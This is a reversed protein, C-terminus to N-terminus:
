RDYEKEITIQATAKGYIVNGTKLVARDYHGFLLLQPAPGQVYTNGVSLPLDQLESGGAGISKDPYIFKVTIANQPIWRNLMDFMQDFNDPPIASPAGFSTGGGMFELMIVGPQADGPIRFEITKMSEKNNFSTMRLTAKVSDGPHFTTKGLNVGEINLDGRGRNVTIKIKVNKMRIDRYPNDFLDMLYSFVGSDAADPPQVYMDEYHFPKGYGEIEGDIVAHSTVNTEPLGAAATVSRSFVSYLLLPAFERLQAIQVNFTRSRGSDADVVEATVPFFDPKDGIHGAIASARDDTIAGIVKGPAGMKMSGPLTSMIHFVEGGSMPYASPGNNFFPHGFALLKDGDRATVTGLATATFDGTMLPSTIVCGACLDNMGEKETEDAGGGAQVPLLNYRALNKKLFEATSSDMNSLLLPTMIPKLEIEGFAETTARVATSDSIDSQLAPINLSRARAFAFPEKEPIGSNYNKPPVSPESWLKMMYEIPQIGAIAEKSWSWGYAVAGIMKGDIYVPSGSMGAIVGSFELNAGTLRALIIDNGNSFKPVVAIIEANFPEPKTGKFVSYGTGKMGPKVDKLPLIELARASACVCLAAAVIAITLLYKKKMRKKGTINNFVTV